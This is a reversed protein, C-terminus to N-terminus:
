GSAVVSNAVRGGQGLDATPIGAVADSSEIRAM